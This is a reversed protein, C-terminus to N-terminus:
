KSEGKLKDLEIQLEKEYKGSGSLFMAVLVVFIAYAVMLQLPYTEILKLIFEM